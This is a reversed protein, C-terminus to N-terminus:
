AAEKLETLQPNFLEGKRSIAVIIRALKGILKFISQQKKMKKVHVNYDHCQKFIPNSTVMGLVALYLYKRLQRRGRKSIVIQGKKKGSTSEALNLGAHSLLQQGHDYQSLDGANALIMAIYLPSLGKISSLVEINRSPVEKLLCSTEKDIQELMNIFMKFQDVLRQIEKRAEEQGVKDGSSGYALKLLETAKHLGSSGGARKMGAQRWGEIIHQATLGLLNSPLPFAELTAISRPGDWEKFLSTYEPFHIDLWRVIRNGVNVKLDSWYERENMLKRLRRYIVDQKRIDSYYGRSVVEAIILSDKSDNKSQSNDRNEKNRKTTLPNVLVVEINREHLWDALNFWYHGTSELGIILSTLGNRRQIFDIWEMLKEFGRGNNAFSLSRGQEMGRFNVARAVHTEKAIDIGVVLHNMTIREIRQNQKANRNINM